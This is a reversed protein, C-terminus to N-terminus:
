HLKEDIFKKLEEPMDASIHVREGNKLTFELSEAHLFLHPVGLKKGVDIHKKSGYLIDGLIPHGISACHVRIQHTRGTKPSVHLLTFEERSDTSKYYHVVRYHTVADKIMKTARVSRKLTGSLIGFPKDIIGERSAVHGWVLASYTKEIARTQFLNKLFFFTEQNKAIVMLGSTEKDLRHVMGPRHKNEGVGEIYPFQELIWSTVTPEHSLKHPHVLLGSPKNIVIVDNNEYVICPVKNM